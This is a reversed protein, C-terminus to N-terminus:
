CQASRKARWAGHVIVAARCLQDPPGVSFSYSYRDDVFTWAPEAGGYGCPVWSRAQAAERLAKVTQETPLGSCIHRTVLVQGPKVISTIDRGTMGHPIELRAVRSFLEVEEKRAAPMGWVLAHIVVVGFVAIVLGTFLRAPGSM